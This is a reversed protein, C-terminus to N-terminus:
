KGLGAALIARIQFERGNSNKNKEELLQVNLIHKGPSLNKAIVVECNYGGWDQNFWADIKVPELNDVWVNAIGMDGKIKWYVLRIHTGEVEFTVISLPKDAIFAKGLRGDTTTFGTNTLPTINDATLLKTYEFIDTFLPEPTPVIVPLDSDTSLEALTKELFAIIFDACYKHGADNPHVHDAFVDLLKVGKAEIEPFIADRYSIMPLKYHLGLKSQWPQANRGSEHMTFLMVIAPNNKQKLIKRLLGEYTEAFSQANGDNVAFETVVFDPNYKLLDEEARHTAISSGTAGIGANVYKIKTNPFTDMFWKELLSGYRKSKHSTIAGETISGGIVAITLPEGQRAKKFVRKLRATDGTSVLSRKYIREKVFEDAQLIGICVSLLVSISLLVLPGNSKKM